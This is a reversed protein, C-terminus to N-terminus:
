WEQKGWLDGGLQTIEMCIKLEWTCIAAWGETLVPDKQLTATDQQSPIARSLKTNYIFM